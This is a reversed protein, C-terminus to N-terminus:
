YTYYHIFYLLHNYFSWKVNLISSPKVSSSIALLSEERYSIAFSYKGLIFTTFLNSFPMLTVPKVNMGIGSVIIHVRIQAETATSPANAKAQVTAPNQKIVVILM